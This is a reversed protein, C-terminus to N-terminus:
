YKPINTLKTLLNLKLETNTIRMNRGYAKLGACTAYQQMFLDNLHHFLAHAM